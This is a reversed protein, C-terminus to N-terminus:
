PVGNRREPCEPEVMPKGIMRQVAAVIETAGVRKPLLQHAGAVGGPLQFVLDSIILTKAGLEAAADAVVIGNGDPLFWDAIVLAYPIAGLCTTAAGASGVSDVAYGEERLVYTLIERTTPEDEVLLIRNEPV